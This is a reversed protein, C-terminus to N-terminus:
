ASATARRANHLSRGCRASLHDATGFVVDAPVALRRYLDLFDLQAAERWFDWSVRQGDEEMWEGDFASFDTELMPAPSWLALGCLANGLRVAAALSARGGM